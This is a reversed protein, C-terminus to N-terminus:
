LIEWIDIGREQARRTMWEEEDAPIEPVEGRTRRELSMAESPCIAVCQGCGVCRDYDVMCIGDPVSLAGFQCRELCSECGTCVEADVVPRFESRAIAEPNGWEVVGRMIACCCTCCNCIYFHQDRHNATCHILGAEKAEQLLRLADEKAIPRTIESKEFADEFPAFIICNEVPHGCGKGLVQQQVRCICQRVGWSKANEILEVAREHPFVELDVRIAQNVPVVRHVSPPDGLMSGSTEQLYQECLAALEQDLRPLQDEYIGVIFPRLGFVLRDEVKRARIQGKRAMERLMGETTEAEMDARAAIETAPEPTLRMISALGAEQPTFIRALIKLEVGSETAPFSNPIADLRRALKKYVDEPM